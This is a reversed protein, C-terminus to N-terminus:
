FFSPFFRTGLPIRVGPVIRSGRFGRSIMEKTAPASRPAGEFFEEFRGIAGSTIAGLASPGATRLQDRLGRILQRQVEAAQIPILGRGPFPRDRTFETPLARSFLAAGTPQM